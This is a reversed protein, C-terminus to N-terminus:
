EYAEVIKRMYPCQENLYDENIRKKLAFNHPKHIGISVTAGVGDPVDAQQMARYYDMGTRDNRSYWRKAIFEERASESVNFTAAISEPSRTELSFLAAEFATPLPAGIGRLVTSFYFDEAASAGKCTAKDYAERSLGSVKFDRFPCYEIAKRLWSRSRLCLGGNGQPGYENVSCIQEESPYSPAETLNGYETHYKDWMSPMSSCLNWEKKGKKAPWPAGVWALDRWKDVHLEHCLVADGQMMLVFDSDEEVFEDPGWFRYNEFMYSPNYFNRCSKLNYKKDNLITMRVQGKAILDAFLPEAREQVLSAKEHYYYSSEDYIDVTGVDSSGLVDCVSTKLVVCTTELPLINAAMSELAWMANKNLNPDVFLVTSSCKNDKILDSQYFTQLTYKEENPPTEVGPAAMLDIMVPIDDQQFLTSVGVICLMTSLTYTTLLSPWRVRRKRRQWKKLM